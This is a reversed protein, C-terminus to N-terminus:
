FVFMLRNKKNPLFAFVIPAVSGGVDAHLTYLQSFIKPCCHFTGDLYITSSSSLKELFLSAAFSVIRNEGEGDDFFLFNDSSDIVLEDISAPNKPRTKRAQRGVVQQISNLPFPNADVIHSDSIITSAIKTQFVCQDPKIIIRAPCREIKDKYNACQFYITGKIEKNKLFLFDEFVLASSNFGEYFTVQNPQIYRLNM